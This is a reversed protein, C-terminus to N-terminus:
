VTVHGILGRDYEWAKVRGKLHAVWDTRAFVKPHLMSWRAQLERWPPSWPEERALRCHTRIVDARFADDANGQEDLFDAFALRPTDEDPNALIAQYLADRDSM